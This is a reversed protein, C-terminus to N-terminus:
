ISREVDFTNYGTGSSIVCAAEATKNVLASTWSGTTNNVFLLKYLGKEADAEGMFILEENYKKAVEILSTIPMCMAPVSGNPQQAYALSSLLMAAAIILTKM